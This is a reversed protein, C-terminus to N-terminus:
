RHDELPVTAVHGNIRFFLRGNAQADQPFFKQQHGMKSSGYPQSSNVKPHICMCGLNTRQISTICQKQCM